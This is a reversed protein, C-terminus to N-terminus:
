ENKPMGLVGLYSGFMSIAGGSIIIFVSLWMEGSVKSVFFIFLMVTIGVLGGMILYRSIYRSRMHRASVFGGIVLPLIVILAPYWLGVKDIFLVLLLPIAHWLGIVSIVAITVGYAFPKILAGM